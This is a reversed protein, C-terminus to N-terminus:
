IMCAWEKELVSDRIKGERSDGPTLAWSPVVSLQSPVLIASFAYERGDLALSCTFPHHKKKEKLGSQPSETFLPITTLLKGSLLPVFNSPYFSPHPNKEWVSITFESFSKSVYLIWFICYYCPANFHASYLVMFM